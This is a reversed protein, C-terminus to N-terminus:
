SVPNEVDSDTAFSSTREKFDRSERSSVAGNSKDAETNDRSAGSGRVSIVTTNNGVKIDHNRTQISVEPVVATLPVTSATAATDGAERAAEAAAESSRAESVDEKSTSLAPNTM